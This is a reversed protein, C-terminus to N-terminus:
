LFCADRKSFDLALRGGISLQAESPHVGYQDQEIVRGAHQIFGDDVDNPKAVQALRCSFRTWLPLLRRVTSHIM